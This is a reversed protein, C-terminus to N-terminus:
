AAVSNQSEDPALEALKAMDPVVLCHPRSLRILGTSKFKTLLRSVTEANMGLHDAIDPRSMPLDIITEQNDIRGVRGSMEVLFSALRELATLRSVRMAQIASRSIAGCAISVISELTEPSRDVTRLFKEHDFVCVVSDVLADVSEIVGPEKPICILDGPFHFAIVQRRGDALTAQVMAAGSVLIVFLHPQGAAEILCSGRPASIRRPEVWEGDLRRLESFPCNSPCGQNGHASCLNNRDVETIGADPTM